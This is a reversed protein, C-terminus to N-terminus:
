KGFCFVNRRKPYDINKHCRTIRQQNQKSEKLQEKIELIEKELEANRNIIISESNNPLNMNM